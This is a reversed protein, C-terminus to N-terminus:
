KLFDNYSYVMKAMKKEKDMGEMLFDSLRINNNLFDYIKYFNGENQLLVLSAHDNKGERNLVLQSVIEQIGKKRKKYNDFKITWKSGERSISQRICIWGNSMIENTIKERANGATGWPEDYLDYISQIYEKSLEFINYNECVDNSHLYKVEIIKGNKYWFAKGNQVM